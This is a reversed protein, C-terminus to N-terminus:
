MQMHIFIFFQEVRGKNVKRIIVSKTTYLKYNYMKNIYSM